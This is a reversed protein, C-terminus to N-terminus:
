ETILPRGSLGRLEHSSLGLFFCTSGVSYFKLIYVMEPSPRWGIQLSLAKHRDPVRGGVTLGGLIYPRLSNRGSHKGEGAMKGRGQVSAEARPM